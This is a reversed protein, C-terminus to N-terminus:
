SRWCERGVKHSWLPALAAWPNPSRNSPRGLVLQSLLSASCLLRCSLGSCDQLCLLELGGLIAALALGAGGLRGLWGAALGALGLWCRWCWTLSTLGVSTVGAWDLWGEPHHHPPAPPTAPTANRFTDPQPPTLTHPVPTHPRIHLTRPTPHVEQNIKLYSNTSGM